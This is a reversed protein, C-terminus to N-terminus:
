LEPHRLVSDVVDHSGAELFAIGFVGSLPPLANALNAATWSAADHGALFINIPPHKAQPAAGIFSSLAEPEILVTNQNRHAAVFAFARVSFAPLCWLVKRATGTVAFHPFSTNV